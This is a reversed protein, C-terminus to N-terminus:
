PQLKSFANNVGISLLFLVFPFISCIYFFFSETIRPSRNQSDASQGCYPMKAVKPTMLSLFIPFFLERFGKYILSKLSNERFYARTGTVPSSDVSSQKRVAIVDGDEIKPYMSDGRVVVTMTEEAESASKLPLLDSGVPVSDAIMGFGAAISEFRPVEYYKVDELIVINDEKPKEDWGM